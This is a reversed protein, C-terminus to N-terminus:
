SAQVYAARAQQWTHAGAMSTKAPQGRHRGDPRGIRARSLAIGEREALLETLHSDNAGDYRTTALKLLRRGLSDPLRRSSTRGRNGHVLAAPGERM